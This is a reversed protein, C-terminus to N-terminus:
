FSVAEGVAPVRVQARAGVMAAVFSSADPALVDFTGYHCPIVVDFDFFRRVALAAQPGDMTFRGGVPVVGIKPRYLEAILAMDLFIGTDGAHYLTPRGPAAIVLGNPNGLYAYGGDVAMGSSHRADTFSTEFGGCPVTGGTNGPNLNQVGQGELFACIEYNAVIQAGTESAIRVADGVHDDHGHTLLVHTAGRTAEEFSGVFRPNETLFPDILVVSADFEVRFAAHGLWTLKM